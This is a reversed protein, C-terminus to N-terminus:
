HLIDLKLFRALPQLRKMLIDRSKHSTLYIRSGDELKLYADYVTNKSTIGTTVMTYVKQSVKVSHIYLKDLGTYSATKGTKWYLFANYIRYSKALRDFEIGRYSTFILISLLILLPSVYPAFVLCLLGTFGIVIGFLQFQFPFLKESKFDLIDDKM